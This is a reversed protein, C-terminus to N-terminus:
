IQFMDCVCLANKKAFGGFAFHMRGFCRNRIFNTSSCFYDNEKASAGPNKWNLNSAFVSVACTFPHFCENNESILTHNKRSSELFINAKSNARREKKLYVIWLAMILFIRACVTNKGETKLEMWEGNHWCFRCFTMWLDTDVKLNTHLFPISHICWISAQKGAFFSEIWSIAEECWCCYCCIISKFYDDVQSNLYGTQCFAALHIPVKVESNTSSIGNFVNVSCGSALLENAIKTPCM